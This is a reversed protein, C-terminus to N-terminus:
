KKFRSFLLAFIGGVSDMVLDYMTDHFPAVVLNYNSDFVGQMDMGLIFDFFYEYFEWITGMGIIAFIFIAYDFWGSTKKILREKLILGIFFMIVIHLIKDYVLFIHYVGFRGILHLYCSLIILLIEKESLNFLRKSISISLFLLFISLVLGIEFFYFAFFGMILLIIHLTRNLNLLFKDFSM